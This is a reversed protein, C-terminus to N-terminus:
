ETSKSAADPIGAHFHLITKLSNPYELQDIATKTARQQMTHKIITVASISQLTLPTNLCAEMKAKSSQFDESSMDEKQEFLAIPLNGEKDTLNKAGFARLMSVQAFRHHQVAYHLPTREQIDEINPNAKAALLYTLAYMQAPSEQYHETILHLATKGRGMNKADVKAGATVLAKIIDLSPNAQRCAIGLATESLRNRANVNANMNLLLIVLRVDMLVARMLATHGTSINCTNAQAGYQHLLQLVELAKHISTPPYKGQQRDQSLCFILHDIATSGAANKKLVNAGSELLAKIAKLDGTLIAQHLPSISGNGARVFRQGELSAGQSLHRKVDASSTIKKDRIAQFFQEQIANKRKIKQTSNASIPTVPMGYFDASVSINSNDAINTFLNSFYRGVSSLM